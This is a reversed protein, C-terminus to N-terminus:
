YGISLDYVGAALPVVLGLAVIATVAQQALLSRLTTWTLFTEPVWVSFVLVLVVLVYVASINRFSLTRRWGTRGRARTWVNIEPKAAADGLTQPEAVLIEEIARM